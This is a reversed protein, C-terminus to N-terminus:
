HKTVDSINITIVPRVAITNDDVYKTHIIDGMPTVALSRGVEDSDSKVWAFCNTSDIFHLANKLCYSSAICTRAADTEFYEDIEASSLISVREPVSESFLIKPKKIDANRYVLQQQEEANFASVIFDSNLWRFLDSDKWSIRKRCNNFPVSDLAYKSLLLAKGNECRLVTWIIPAIEGRCGQAYRGFTISDGANLDPRTYTNAFSQSIGGSKRNILIKCLEAIDDDSLRSAMERFVNRDKETIM